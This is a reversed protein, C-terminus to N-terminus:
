QNGRLWGVLLSLGWVGALVSFVAWEFSFSAQWLIALTSLALGLLTLPGLRMLHARQLFATDEGPAAYRLRRSFYSLDYALLAGLTGALMWGFPLGLYLGAVATLTLLVLGFGSLWTRRRLLGLTWLLAFGGLGWAAPAYGADWYAWALAGTGMWLSFFLAFSVAM